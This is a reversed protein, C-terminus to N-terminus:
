ESAEWVKEVTEKNKFDGKLAKLAYKERNIENTTRKGLAKLAGLAPSWGTIAQEAMILSAGASLLFWKKNVFAGLVAGALTLAAANLLLTREADWESDIESIREGIKGKGKHGYSHIPSQSKQENQKKEDNGNPNEQTTEKKEM